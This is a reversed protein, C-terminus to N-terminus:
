NNLAGNDLWCRIKEQDEKSLPGLPPMDKLLLARRDLEGNKAVVSLKEYTTFDILTGAEHCPMCYNAILPAIDKSYTANITNCDVPVPAAAPTSSVISKKTKCAPSLVVIAVLALIVPFLKKLLM